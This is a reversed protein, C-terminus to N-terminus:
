LCEEEYQEDGEMYGCKFWKWVTNKALDQLEEDDHHTWPRVLTYYLDTVLEKFKADEDGSILGKGQRAAMGLNLAAHKIYQETRSIDEEENLYKRWNELLLKM